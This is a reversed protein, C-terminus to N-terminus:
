YMSKDQLKTENEFSKGKINQKFYMQKIDLM